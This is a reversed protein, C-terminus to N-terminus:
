LAVRSHERLGSPDGTLKAKAYKLACNVPNGGARAWYEAQSPEFRLLTAAPDDAGRPFYMEAGGGWLSKMRARDEVVSVTGSMVLHEGKEGTSFSLLADSHQEAEVIKPSDRHTIFWIADWDDPILAYMPRASLGGGDHLTLFGVKVSQAIKWAKEVSGRDNDDDM